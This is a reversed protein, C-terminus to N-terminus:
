SRSISVTVFGNSLKAGPVTAGSKLADTLAKKDLKPPQAEWFESPIEAEEILIATPAVKRLSVTGAPTERKKTEALELALGILARRTEKRAKIRSLRGRLKDIYATAAEILADDEGDNAVLADIMEFVSTEGEIGDRIFDPDDGGAAIIQERLMKANEIERRFEHTTMM